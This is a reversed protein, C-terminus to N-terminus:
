TNRGAGFAKAGPLASRPQLERQEGMEGSKPTVNQGTVEIKQHSWSFGNTKLKNLKKRITFIFPVSGLTLAGGRGIM